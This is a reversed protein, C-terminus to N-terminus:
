WEFLHTVYNPLIPATYLTNICEHALKSLYWKLSSTEAAPSANTDVLRTKTGLSASCVAAGSVVGTPSSFAGAPESFLHTDMEQCINLNCTIDPHEASPDRKNFMVWLYLFLSWVINQKKELGISIIRLGIFWIGLLYGFTTFIYITSWSPCSCQLSSERRFFLNFVRMFLVSQISYKLYSVTVNRASVRPTNTFKLM